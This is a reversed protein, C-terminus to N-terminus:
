NQTLPPSGKKQLSQAHTMNLGILTMGKKLGRTPKVTQQKNQSKVLITVTQGKSASEIDVRNEQIGKVVITKFAGNKDPGMM